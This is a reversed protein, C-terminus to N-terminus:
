GKLGTMAIGEVVFRQGFVYLRFSRRLAIAVSAVVINETAAIWAYNDKAQIPTTGEPWTSKSASSKRFSGTTYGENERM